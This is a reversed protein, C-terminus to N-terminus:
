LASVYVQKQGVLEVGHVETNLKIRQLGAKKGRQAEFTLLYQHQGREMIENFYPTFSVPSDFALYYSEGGTGDTLESLFSQGANVRWFTHGFHGSGREYIANVVVGARQADDIAANVYPDNLDFSDWFPDIGNTIMVVERAADGRPWHKLLDQLSFYPSAEAGPEGIPLRLAKAAQAHDATLNQTILATGNRMYAVGTQVSEPQSTIFSRIEGLKSGLDQTSLSDDILVFLQQGAQISSIPQWSVVHDRQKEQMVMVDEQRIEPVSKGHHAEATVVMQVPAAPYAPESQGFTFYSLLFILVASLVNKVSFFTM